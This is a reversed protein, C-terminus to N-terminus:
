FVFSFNVANCSLHCPKSGTGKGSHGEELAKYEALTGRSKVDVGFGRSFHILTSVQNRERALIETTPIFLTKQGL